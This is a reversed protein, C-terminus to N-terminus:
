YNDVEEAYEYGPLRIIKFPKESCLDYVPVGGAAHCDDLFKQSEEANKKMDRVASVAVWSLILIVLITLIIELKNEM